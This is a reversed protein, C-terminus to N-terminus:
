AKSSRYQCCNICQEKNASALPESLSPDGWHPLHGVSTERPFPSHLVQLSYHDMYIIVSFLVSMIISMSLGLWTHFQLGLQTKNKKIWLQM